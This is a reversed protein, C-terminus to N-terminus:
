VRCVSLCVAPVPAKGAAPYEQQTAANGLEWHKGWAYYDAGVGGDFLFAYNLDGKYFERMQHELMPNSHTMRCTEVIRDMVQRDQPPAARRVPQADAAQAKTYIPRGPPPAPAAASGAPEQAVTHISRGLPPQPQLLATPTRHVQAATRTGHVQVAGVCPTSPMIVENDLIRKDGQGEGPANSADWWYTKEGKTGWFQRPPKWFQRRLQPLLPLCDGFAEAESAYGFQRLWGKPLGGSRELCNGFERASVGPASKPMGPGGMCRLLLRSLEEARRGNVQQPAAHPASGDSSHLSSADLAREAEGAEPRKRKPAAPKHKPSAAPLQRGGDTSADMKAAAKRPSHGHGLSNCSIKESTRIETAGTVSSVSASSRYKFDFAPTRSGGITIEFGTEGATILVDTNSSTFPWGGSREEKGWKSNIMSNRVITGISKEQRLLPKGSDRARPDWHFLRNGFADFLTARATNTVTFVRNKSDAHNCAPPIGRPPATGGSAAALKPRPQSAPERPWPGLCSVGDQLGADAAKPSHPPKRDALKRPSATHGEAAETRPSSTAVLRLMMTTKKGPAVFAQLGTECSCSLEALLKGLKKHGCKVVAPQLQEGHAKLYMAPLTSVELTRQRTRSSHTSGKVFLAELRRAVLLSSADLAREAGGVKPKPAAPKHKPSAAPLQRGGDAHNCAPPTGRPPATGGSVAALKLRAQAQEATGAQRGAAAAKPSHPPKPDALKRSPAKQLVKQAKPSGAGSSVSSLQRLLPKGRSSVESVWGCLTASQFKVRCPGDESRWSDVSVITDGSQLSGVERTSLSSGERVLCADVVRYEVGRRRGAGSSADMQKAAKRPSPASGGSAVAPKLQPQAQTQEATATQRGAAAKCLHPPKPDALKRPSAKPLVKQAKPSGAAGSSASSFQRLSPEGGRIIKTSDPSRSRSRNRKLAGRGRSGDQERQAKATSSTPGSSRNSRGADGVLSVWMSGRHAHANFEPKSELWTKLADPELKNQSTEDSHSVGFLSAYLGPSKACIDAALKSLKSAGSQKRLIRQVLSTMIRRAQLQDEGLESSTVAVTVKPLSRQASAADDVASTSGPFKIGDAGFVIDDDDDDDDGDDGHLEEFRQHAAKTWTEAKVKTVRGSGDTDM